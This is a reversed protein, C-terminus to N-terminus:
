GQGHGSCQPLPEPGVPTSEPGTGAGRGHGAGGVRRHNLPETAAEGVAAKEGLGTDWSRM